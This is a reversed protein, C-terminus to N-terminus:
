YQSGFHNVMVNTQVRGQFPALRSCMGMETFDPMAINKYHLPSKVWGEVTSKATPHGYALNEGATKYNYGVQDFFYWPGTGDPADHSWYNKAIMDDAKACASANLKENVALAPLGNDTRAKNVLVILENADIAQIVPAKYEEKHPKAEVSTKVTELSFLPEVIYYVGSTIAALAILVGAGTLLKKKKSM